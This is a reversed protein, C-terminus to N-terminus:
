NRIWVKTTGSPREYRDFTIRQDFVGDKDADVLEEKLVGHEYLQRREIVASDNPHWDRKQVLGNAFFVTVDPKGDADTDMRVVYNFRDIYTTWAEPQGDFNDDSTSSRIKGERYKHWADIKGDYNRDEEVRALQGDEYHYITGVTGRANRDRKVDGTYTSQDMISPALFYGVAVGLVFLAFLILPDAKTAERDQKRARPVVEKAEEAEIEGLIREARELDEPRVLLRVGASAQLAPYAGGCDDKQVLAEVGDSGLRAAAISAVAESSYTRLVVAEDNEM